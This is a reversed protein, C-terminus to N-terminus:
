LCRFRRRDQQYGREGGDYWRGRAGDVRRGLACRQQEVLGEGDLVRVDGERVDHRRGDLAVEARGGDVRAWHALRVRVLMAELALVDRLAADPRDIFSLPRHKQWPRHPHPM